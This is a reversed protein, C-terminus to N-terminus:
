EAIIGYASWQVSAGSGIPTKSAYSVAGATYYRVEDGVFDDTYSFYLGNILTNSVSVRIFDGTTLSVNSFSIEGSLTLSNVGADFDTSLNSSGGSYWTSGDFSYELLITYTANWPGSLKTECDIDVHFYATYEGTAAYDTLTVQDSSMSQSELTQAGTQVLLCQATFGTPLLGFPTYIDRQALSSSPAGTATSASVKTLDSSWKSEPQVSLGGQMVVLPTEAFPPVFIVTQNNICTGQQTGKTIIQNTLGDHALVNKNINVGEVDNTVAAYAAQTRSFGNLAQQSFTYPQHASTDTLWSSTPYGEFAHQFRYFYYTNRKNSLRDIYLTGAMDLTAAPLEAITVYASSSPLLSSTASARQVVLNFNPSAPAIRMPIGDILDGALGTSTDNDNLARM